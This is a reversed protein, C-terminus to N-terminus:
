KTGNAPTDHHILRAVELLMKTFYPDCSDRYEVGTLDVSYYLVQNWYALNHYHYNGHAGIPIIEMMGSRGTDQYAVYTM